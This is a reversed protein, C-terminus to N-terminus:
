YDANDITKNYAQWSNPLPVVKDSPGVHFHVEDGPRTGYEVNWGGSIRCLQLGSKTIKFNFRQPGGDEQQDRNAVFCAVTGDPFSQKGLYTGGGKEEISLLGSFFNPTLGSTGEAKCREIIRWGVEKATNM